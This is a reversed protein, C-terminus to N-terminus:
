ADDGEAQLELSSCIYKLADVISEATWTPTTGKTKEGSEDGKVYKGTKVLIAESIGADLAGKIDGVVDDGVMITDSADVGLAALATQYFDFSPKGVVHAEVGATQELLSIFGGPGLSLKHDSDRYHTGRHIAILLPPDYEESNTDSDLYDECDKSDGDHLKQKKNPQDDERRQTKAKQREEKLKLLLRYAENLREYKFKSQALGVVVCNPDDMSLGGFEAQILEDELLCFPRLNNQILFDRTASVSTMIANTSEPLEFGMEKLQNMLSASSVKSTNTLFMVKINQAALLKRCAEVAGPIPYKGVHVTGSIDILAAKIPKTPKPIKLRLRPMMAEDNPDFPLHKCHDWCCGGNKRVYWRQLQNDFYVPFRFPCLDEKKEARKRMSQYGGGEGQGKGRYIRGRFCTMTHVIPTEKKGHTKESVIFYGHDRCTATNMIEVLNDKHVGPNFYLREDKGILAFLYATDPQSAMWTMLDVNLATTSDPSAYLSLTFSPPRWNAIEEAQQEDHKATAVRDEEPQKNATETSEEEKLLRMTESIQRQYEEDSNLVGDNDDSTAAAAADMSAKPPLNSAEM